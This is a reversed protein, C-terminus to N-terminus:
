IEIATPPFAISYDEDLISVNRIEALKSNNLKVIQTQHSGTHIHGCVNLEINSALIREKLTNSGFDLGYKDVYGINGIRPPQHTILVDTDADFLYDSNYPDSFAWGIPSESNPIGFFKKDGITVWSNSLYHIMSQARYESLVNYLYLEFDNNTCVLDHNGPIFIIHKTNLSLMWPIFKNKIWTLMSAYDRQIYLPSWDGAIVLVDSTEPISILNGHLDSIAIIKM